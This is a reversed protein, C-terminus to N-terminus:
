DCGSSTRQQLEACLRQAQASDGGADLMAALGSTAAVDLPAIVLVRRYWNEASARDGHQLHGDAVLVGLSAQWPRVQAPNHAYVREMAAYAQELWALAEADRGMLGLVDGTNIMAGWADPDLAIAQRYDSLADDFRGQASAVFGLAKHAASARPALAVSREALRRARELQARQPERALHGNALADGLRRFETSPNGPSHPWRLARQVLANALGALAVPDDGHQALVREYLDIAAENDARSFQFYADDARALLGARASTDADAAATGPPTDHGPPLLLWWAGSAAVCALAAFLLGRGRPRRQAAPTGPATAESDSADSDHVLLRYGRKSITEIYRPARADDGLAQRLKSVTRALSDDGVVMGPWLSAMIEERGVVAGPREALLCLLDMVKPEVRQTGGPGSLECAARDVRWPGVSSLGDCGTSKM